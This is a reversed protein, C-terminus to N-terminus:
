PLKNTKKILFSQELIEFKLNSLKTFLIWNFFSCQSLFVIFNSIKVTPEAHFRVQSCRRKWFSGIPQSESRKRIIWLELIQKKYFCPICREDIFFFGALLPRCRASFKSRSNESHQSSGGRYLCSRLKVPLEKKLESLEMEQKDFEQCAIPWCSFVISSVRSAM